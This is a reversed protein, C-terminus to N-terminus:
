LSPYIKTKGKYYISKRLIFAKRMVLSRGFQQVYIDKERGERM